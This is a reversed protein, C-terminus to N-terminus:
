RLADEIHPRFFACRKRFLEVDIEQEEPIDASDLSVARISARVTSRRGSRAMGGLAIEGKGALDQVALKIHDVLLRQHEIRSPRTAKARLKRSLDTERETEREGSAAQASGDWSEGQEAILEELRRELRPALSAELRPALSEGMERVAEAVEGRAREARENAAAFAEALSAELRSQLESMSRSRSECEARLSDELWGELRTNLEALGRSRREAEQTVERSVRCVSAELEAMAMGLRQAESEEVAREGRAPPAAESDVSAAVQELRKVQCCLERVTPRLDDAATDDRAAPLAALQDRLEQEFGDVQRRLELVIPRLNERSHEAREAGLEQSLRQVAEDLRAREKQENAVTRMFDSREKVWEARADELAKTNRPSQVDHALNAIQSKMAAQNELTARQEGCCAQVERSLADMQEGCFQKFERRTAAVESLSAEREELHDAARRSRQELKSAHEDHFVAAALSAADKLRGEFKSELRQELQQMQQEITDGVAKAEVMVTARTSPYATLSTETGPPAASM